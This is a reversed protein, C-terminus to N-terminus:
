FTKKLDGEKIKPFTSLEPLTNTLALFYEVEIRVRYHILGFESFYPALSKVSPFYRGDLPSIATLSNLEV